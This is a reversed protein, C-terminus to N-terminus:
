GLNDAILVFAFDVSDAGSDGADIFDFFRELAFGDLFELLEGRGPLAMQSTIMRELCRRFQQDLAHVFGPEASCSLREFCAHCHKATLERRERCANDARDGRNLSCFGCKMLDFSAEPFGAGLIEFSDQGFGIGHDFICGAAKAAAFDHYVLMGHFPLHYMEVDLQNAADGEVAPHDCFHLGTFPFGEDGGERNEEIGQSAEANM